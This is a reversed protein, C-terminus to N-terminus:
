TAESKDSLETLIAHQTSLEEFRHTIVIEENVQVYM